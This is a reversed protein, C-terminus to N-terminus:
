CKTGYTAIWSDQHAYSIFLCDTSVEYGDNEVKCYVDEIAPNIIQRMVSILHGLRIGDDDKITLDLPKFNHRGFRSVSSLQIRNPPPQAVFTDKWTGSPWSLMRMSEEGKFEFIASADYFHDRPRITLSLFPNLDWDVVRIEPSIMQHQPKRM